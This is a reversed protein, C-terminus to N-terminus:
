SSGSGGLILEDPWLSKLFCEAKVTFVVDEVERFTLFWQATEIWGLSLSDKKSWYTFFNRHIYVFM